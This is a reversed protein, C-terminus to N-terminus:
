SFPYFYSTSVSARWLCIHEKVIVQVSGSDANRDLKLQLYISYDPIFCGFAFEYM